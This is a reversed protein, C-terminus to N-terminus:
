PNENSTDQNDLSVKGEEKRLTVRIMMNLAVSQWSSRINCLTCNKDRELCKLNKEKKKAISKSTSSHRSPINLQVPLSSHSFRGPPKLHKHGALNFM